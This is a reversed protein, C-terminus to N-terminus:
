VKYLWRLHSLDAKTADSLEVDNEKRTSRKLIGDKQLPLLNVVCKAQKFDEMLLELLLHLEAMIYQKVPAQLFQLLLPFFLLYMCYILKNVEELSTGNLAILLHM